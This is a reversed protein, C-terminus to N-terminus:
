CVNELLVSIKRGIWLVMTVGLFNLLLIWINNLLRDMNQNRWKDELHWYHKKLSPDM